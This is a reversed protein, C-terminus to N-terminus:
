RLEPTLLQPPSYERGILACALLYNDRARWPLADLDVHGSSDCPFAMARGENFLSVFRVEFSPHDPKLAPKM